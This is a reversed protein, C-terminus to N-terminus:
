LSRLHGAYGAIRARCYYRVPYSAMAHYSDRDESYTLNIIQMVSSDDGREGPDVGVVGMRQIGFLHSKPILLGTLLYDREENTQTEEM